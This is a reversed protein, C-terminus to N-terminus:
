DTISSFGLEKAREIYAQRATENTYENGNAICYNLAFKVLENVGTIEAKYKRVAENKEQEIAAHADQTSAFLSALAYTNSGSAGFESDDEYGTYDFDCVDIMTGNFSKTQYVKTVKGSFVRGTWQEVGYITDNVNVNKIMITVERKKHTKELYRDFCM